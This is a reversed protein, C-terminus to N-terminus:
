QFFKQHLKFLEVSFMSRLNRANYNVSLARPLCLRGLMAIAQICSVKARAVCEAPLGLAARSSLTDQICHLLKRLTLIEHISILNKEIYKSNVQGVISGLEILPSVRAPYVYYVLFWCTCKYLYSAAQFVKTLYAKTSTCKCQFHM